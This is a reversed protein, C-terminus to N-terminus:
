IKLNDKLVSLPSTAPQLLASSPLYFTQEFTFQGSMAAHSVQDTYVIWTSNAPFKIEQQQVTKQYHLDAKMNDHLQLMYHDYLSRKSKTIKLLHLLTASGRIPPSIKPYFHKVVSPFPEGLRWVRPQQHPNVNTFVRLIRKGQTPNAPFADVHLRSDDKRFSAPKRGAIEVPRYSTRAQILSPQYFPLLNDVLSKTESLYRLMMQTLQLYEIDSCVAGQLLQKSIDFSINKTKPDVFRKSLFIHEEPLLTFPLSPLFLV